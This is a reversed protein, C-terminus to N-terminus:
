NSIRIDFQMFQHLIDWTRIEWGGGNDITTFTNFFGVTGAAALHIDTSFGKNFGVLFGTAFGNDNM